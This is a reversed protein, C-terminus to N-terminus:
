LILYPLFPLLSDWRWHDRNRGPIFLTDGSTLLPNQSQDGRRILRALDLRRPRPSGAHIIGAGAPSAQPGAGGCVALLALVRSGDDLYHRGPHDVAGFAYVELRRREPITILDGPQLTPNQSLDGALLADARVPISESGRGIQVGGLDPAVAAESTLPAPLGARRLADLVTMGPVFEYHGPNPVCGLIAIQDSARRMGLLLTDGNRLGMTAPKEELSVSLVDQRDRIVTATRDATPLAGGALAVAELPGAGQPVRYAGPSRVQGLVYVTALGLEIVTVEVRPHQLYETLAATLRDSLEAATMGAASVEGVLPLAIAGDDRVAVDGSLEPSGWVTIRIRDGAALRHAEEAAPCHSILLVAAALVAGARFASM